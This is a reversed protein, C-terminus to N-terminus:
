ARQMAPEAGRLAALYLLLSPTYGGIDGIPEGTLPDLEQQFRFRDAHLLTARLWSALTADLWEGKGYAEAWLLARLLTLAQTNRGWSNHTPEKPFHPDDIAMSPVPYAAAFGRGPTAFHRAWIADVEDQDLVGNLFLRTIHETRYRRFGARDRDYFFEDVPDYLHRRIAEGLASADSRWRSAEAPRGLDDAVDALAMRTGFLMASLDVSLVPMCPLAPMAAADGGPCARPIGGDCVRPDNDHGTDFECFMEALGTGATDRHRRFWGDYRVGADYLRAIDREPRGVRRALELACRIPSWVAQVQGYRAPADGTPRLPLNFPLLGDDRQFRLFAEQAAWAAQAAEDGLGFASDALFLWDQNHELWIGPYDAGAIPLRTGGCQAFPRINDLLAARVAPVRAILAKREQLALSGVVEREVKFPIDIPMRKRREDM